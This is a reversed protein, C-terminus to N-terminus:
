TSVDKFARDSSLCFCGYLMHSWYNWTRHSYSYFDNHAHYPVTYGKIYDAGYSISKIKFNGLGSGFIPNEIFSQFASEWYDFRGSSASRNFAITQVRDSYSKTNYVNSLVQSGFYAVLFPFVVGFIYVLSKEISTKKTAYNYINYAIFLLVISTGSLLAARAYIITLALYALALLLLICFRILEKSTRQYFYLLLFKSLRPLQQSIKIAALDRSNYQM